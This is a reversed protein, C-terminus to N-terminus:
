GGAAWPLSFNDDAATETYITGSASVFSLIPYTRQIQRRVYFETRWREYWRENFFDPVHQAPTDYAFGVNAQRLSALNQTLQFGDRILGINDYAAPGYVNVAIPILENRQMMPENADTFGVFANNDPTASGLGFALWNVDIDPEKPPQKQWEPRVLAGSFGSLGVLLTQIFQVFTLGRPTTDLAPPQPNPLLFGGTSTNNM